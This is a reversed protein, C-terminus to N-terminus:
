LKKANVITYDTEIESLPKDFDTNYQKKNSGITPYKWKTNVARCISACREEELIMELEVRRELAEFVKLTRLPDSKYVMCNYLSDAEVDASVTNNTFHNLLKIAKILLKKM